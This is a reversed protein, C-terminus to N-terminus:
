RAAPAVVLAEASRPAWDAASAPPGARRLTAEATWFGRADQTLRPIEITAAVEGRPEHRVPDLPEGFAVGRLRSGEFAVRFAGFVMRRTVMEDAVANLWDALLDEGSSASRLIAVEVRTRVSAPEAVVASLARAAQEFAGARTDAVGRVGVGADCEFHEWGAVPARGYGMPEAM